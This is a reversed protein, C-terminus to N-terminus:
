NEENVKDGQVETEKNDDDDSDRNDDHKNSEAEPQETAINDQPIVPILENVIDTNKSDDRTSDSISVIKQLQLTM